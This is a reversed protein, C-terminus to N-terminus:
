SFNENGACAGLSSQLCQLFLQKRLLRVPPNCGNSLFRLLRRIPGSFTGQGQERM